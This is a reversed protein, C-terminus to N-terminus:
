ELECSSFFLFKREVLKQASLTKCTQHQHKTHVYVPFILQHFRLSKQTVSM